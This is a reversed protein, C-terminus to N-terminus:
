RALGARAGSASKAKASEYAEVIQRV